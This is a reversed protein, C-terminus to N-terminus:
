KKDRKDILKKIKAAKEYDEVEEAQDLLEELSPIDEQESMAIVAEDVTEKSSKGTPRDSPYLTDWFTLNDTDDYNKDIIKNMESVINSEYYEEDTDNADWGEVEEGNDQIKKRTEDREEPTGYLTIEHLIAAFLQQLSLPRYDAKFLLELKDRYEDNAQIEFSNDISILKKRFQSLSSLAISILYDNGPVTTDLKGFANFSPYDYFEIKDEIQYVVVDWYIKLNYEQNPIVLDFEQEYDDIFDDIELGDMEANFLINFFEKHFIIIDFLREFTVDNGLEVNEGLSFIIKKVDIEDVTDSGPKTQRLSFDSSFIKDKTITIM